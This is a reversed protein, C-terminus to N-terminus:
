SGGEDGADTAPVEVTPFSAGRTTVGEGSVGPRTGTVKRAGVRTTYSKPQDVGLANIQEKSTYLHSVLRRQPEVAVVGPLTGLLDAAAPDVTVAVAGIAPLEIAREVGLDRLSVLAGAPVVGGEFAVVAKAFGAEETPLSPATIVTAELTAGASLPV